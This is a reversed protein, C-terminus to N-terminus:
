GNSTAVAAFYLALFTAAALALLVLDWPVRRM